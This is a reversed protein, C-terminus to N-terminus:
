ETKEKINNLTKELLPIEFGFIFQYRQSSLTSEPNNGFDLDPFDGNFPSEFSTSSSAVTVGLILNAWSLKWNIGGSFHFYDAATVTEDGDDTTNDLITANSTFANFDTSFGFYSTFKENLYVEGGVGVNFVFQRQENFLVPTPTTDGIEIDPVDLRSYNSLGSVFDMNLHIKSRKIPIGAGVSIGLPEKRNANLDEFSYDYFIDLGNGIGSTVQNFSYSGENYVEIYPININVGLDVKNLKYFAGLKLHLGYSKQKFSTQSLFYAVANEDYEVTHSVSRAGDNRYSSGFVSIGLSFNESIKRAWTLGYWDEKTRGIISAKLNYSEIDPFLEAINDTIGRFSIGLNLESRRRAIFSYAFREGFLKFTGGAMSPVGGFSRNTLQREEDLATTLNLSTLQYAKANFAFGTNELETLRAPNYYVLGIDSVSGTVNGSLLISRNGFNNFKYNGQQGWSYMSIFVFILRIFRM